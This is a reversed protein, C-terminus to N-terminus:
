KKKFNKMLFESTVAGVLFLILGAVTFLVTEDVTKGQLNGRIIMWLFGLCVYLTLRKSSSGGDQDQFFDAFWNILKM